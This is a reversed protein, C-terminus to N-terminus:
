CFKLYLHEIAIKLSAAVYNWTRASTALDQSTSGFNHRGLMLLFPKLSLVMTAPDAGRPM